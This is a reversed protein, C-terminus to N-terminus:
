LSSICIPGKVLDDEDVWGMTLTKEKELCHLHRKTAKNARENESFHNTGPQSHSTQRKLHELSLEPAADLSEPAGANTQRTTQDTQTKRPPSKCHSIKTSSLGKLDKFKKVFPFSVIALPLPYDSITSACLFLSVSPLVQSLCRSVFGSMFRSLNFGYLSCHFDKFYHLDLHFLTLRYFSRLENMQKANRSM